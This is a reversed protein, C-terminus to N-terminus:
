QSVHTDFRLILKSDQKHFSINNFLIEIQTQEKKSIRKQKKEQQLQIFNTAISTGAGPKRMATTFRNVRLLHLIEM